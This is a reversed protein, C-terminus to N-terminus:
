WNLAYRVGAGFFFYKRVQDIAVPWAPFESFAGTKESPCPKATESFVHFLPEPQGKRTVEHSITSMVEELRKLYDPHKDTFSHRDGMRVHVAFHLRGLDYLCYPNEDYRGSDHM